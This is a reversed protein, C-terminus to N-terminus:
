MLRIGDMQDNNLNWNSGRLAKRIYSRRELIEEQTMKAAHCSLRGEGMVRHEALSKANM